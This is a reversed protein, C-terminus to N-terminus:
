GMKDYKWEKFIEQKMKEIDNLAQKIIKIGKTENDDRYKSFERIGRKVTTGMKKMLELQNDNWFSYDQAASAFEYYLFSNSGLIFSSYLMNCQFNLIDKNAFFSQSMDESICKILNNISDNSKIIRMQESFCNSLLAEDISIGDGESKIISIEKKPSFPYIISKRAKRYDDLSIYIYEGQLADRLGLTFGKRAEDYNIISVTSVNSLKQEKQKNTLGSNLYMAILEVIIPYRNVNEKIFKIEADIDEYNYNKKSLAYAKLVRNMFEKDVCEYIPCTIEEDFLKFKLRKVVGNIPMSLLLFASKDTDVGLGRLVNYYTDLRCDSFERKLYKWNDYRYALM